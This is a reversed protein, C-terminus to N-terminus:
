QILKKFHLADKLMFINNFLVFVEKVRLENIKEKLKRLEKSSYKHKYNIRGKEYSGHLRFYAIKKKGFYTPNERFPDVCLILGFKKCIKEINKRSWGRPEFAIQIKGRKIKKFFNEANRLNEETDKFRSPTQILIIKANLINAAKLTEMWSNLVEETPKLNGYNEKRGPIEGRFRRWTPSKHTHTVGQFAKLNFIFNKQALNKWKLLTKEQPIQYFTKQIEITEFDQFYKKMGEAFGCCGIYIKM